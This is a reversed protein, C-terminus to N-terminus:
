LAVFSLWVSQPPVVSCLSCCCPLEEEMSVRLPHLWAQGEDGDVNEGGHLLYLLLTLLVIFGAGDGQRHQSSRTTIEDRVVWAWM